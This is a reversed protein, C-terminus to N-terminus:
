WEHSKHNGRFLREVVEAGGLFLQLGRENQANQTLITIINLPAEAWKQAM